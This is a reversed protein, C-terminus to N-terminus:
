NFRSNLYAVFQELHWMAARVHETDIAGPAEDDISLRLDYLLDIIDCLGQMADSAVQYIQEQQDASVM